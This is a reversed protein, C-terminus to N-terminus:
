AGCDKENLSLTHLHVCAVDPLVMTKGNSVVCAPRLVVVRNFIHWEKQLHDLCTQIRPDLRFEGACLFPAFVGEDPFNIQRVGHVFDDQIADLSEMIHIVSVMNIANVHEPSIPPLTVTEAAGSARHPVVNTLFDTLAYVEHPIGLDHEKEGEQEKEQEQEEPEPEPAAASAAAPQVQVQQLKRKM